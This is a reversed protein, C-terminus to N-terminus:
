RRTKAGKTSAEQGGPGLEVGGLELSGGAHEGVPPRHPTLSPLTWPWPLAAVAPPDSPSNRRATTEAVAKAVALGWLQVPGGQPLPVEFPYGKIRSTIPCVLALGVKSNYGSPSVM